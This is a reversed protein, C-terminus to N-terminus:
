FWRRVRAAYADYESGFHQRLYREEPRIMWLELIIAAISGCALFWLSNTAVALGLAVIMAGPLEPKAVM